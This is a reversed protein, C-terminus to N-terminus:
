IVPNWVTQGHHPYQTPFIVYVRLYIFLQLLQLSCLQLRGDDAAEREASMTGEGVNDYMKDFLIM